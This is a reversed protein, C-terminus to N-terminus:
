AIGEVVGVDEDVLLGGEGGAGGEGGEGGGDVEEAASFGAVGGGGGGAEPGTGLEAHVLPVEAGHGHFAGGTGEDVAEEGMGRLHVGRKDHAVDEVGPDGQAKTIESGKGGGQTTGGSFRPAAM